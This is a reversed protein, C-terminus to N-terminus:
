SETGQWQIRYINPIIYKKSNHGKGNYQTYIGSVQRAEVEFNRLQVCQELRTRKSDALTELDVEREHLYELLEQIRTPADHHTDAMLQVGTTEFLQSSSSSFHYSQVESRSRQLTRQKRVVVKSSFEYHFSQAKKDMTVVNQKKDGLSIISQEKNEVNTVNQENQKMSIVNQENREM